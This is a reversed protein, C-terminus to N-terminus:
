RWTTSCRCSRSRRSPRSRGACAGGPVVSTRSRCCTKASPPCAGAVPKVFGSLVNFFTTKGAGNPGILGCTGSDFKVSMKDLPTVGGFRVTLDSVEIVTAAQRPRHAAQFLRGILRGLRAMDKPLQDVIGRPATTLVQLVGVGFLITLWDPSIGWNTFLAPFFQLLIGAVVAGWMSYVGGM